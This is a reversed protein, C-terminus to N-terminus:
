GNGRELFNRNDKLAPLYLLFTTGRGMESSITIKGKISEVVRNVIALGLGTGQEKTTYFPEFVKELEKEEIGCGTDSVLIELGDPYDAFSKKETKVTLAGKVPMSQLANLLLNWIVQRIESRNAYIFVYEALSKRIEIGEHWDQGYQLADLVEEMIERSDIMEPSGPTPRALLLFDKMFSELQEKGRLIIRMLREDSHPLYLSRSWVQISGSISALPNRIEHALCAAMEGIFAMRRSKEYIEEMKKISTLDQFILIDGIREGKNNKLPSVSCGLIVKRDKKTQFVVEFRNEAPTQFADRKAQMDAYIPLIESLSKGEVDAFAYDTIEQAAKNFSKIKGSLNITLIGLNASEVISRHLLDLQEFASEKEALLARVKREQEVVFSALFATVYFSLIHTFIRSFVYGAQLPYDSITEYLPNILGYYELDLLAGYFISCVSAIIIAGGRGLFLVSYIIVLNYFVSYISLTGGTVYVLYTILAVDCIAQIYANIQINKSLYLLFLYFFSLGYVTLIIVYYFSLSREPFLAMGKLESFTAMGLLFTIIAVRALMLWRIRATRNEKQLRHEDM